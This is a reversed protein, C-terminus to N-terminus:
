GRHGEWHPSVGRTLSIPLHFPHRVVAGLLTVAPGHYLSYGLLNPRNVTHVSEALDTCTSVQLQPHLLQHLDM